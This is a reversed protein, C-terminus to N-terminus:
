NYWTGARLVRCAGLSSLICATWEAEVDQLDELQSGREEAV